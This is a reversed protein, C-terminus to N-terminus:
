SSASIYGSGNGGRQVLAELADDLDDVAVV